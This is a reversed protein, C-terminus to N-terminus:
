NEASIFTSGKNKLEVRWFQNQVAIRSPFVINKINKMQPNLDYKFPKPVQALDGVSFATKIDVYRVFIMQKPQPCRKLSMLYIILDDNTVQTRDEPGVHYLSLVSEIFNDETGCLEWM